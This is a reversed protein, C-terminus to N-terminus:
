LGYLFTMKEDGSRGGTGGADDIWRTFTTLFASKGVVALIGSRGARAKARGLPGDGFEREREVEDEDWEAVIKRRRENERMLLLRFGAYGAFALLVGLFTVAFPFVYGPAFQPKFLVAALVGAFNGWGNIGLVVARKGPSPVNDALWAVTLPSAVFTGALLLCLALYRLAPQDQPLLVVASLGTLLLGLSYLIPVIRFRHRDSWSAFLYLISAGILFPPATLINAHAPTDSLPKIILPLFIAFATTPISSLINVTLLYYIKWDTFASIIDRTSIGSDSTLDAARKPPLSSESM